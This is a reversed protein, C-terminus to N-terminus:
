DEILENDREDLIKNLREKFNENLREVIPELEKPTKAIIRKNFRNNDIVYNGDSGINHVKIRDIGGSYDNKEDEVSQEFAVKMNDLVVLLDTDGEGKAFFIAFPSSLILFILFFPALLIIILANRLKKNSLIFIALRLKM